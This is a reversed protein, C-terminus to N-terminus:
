RRGAQDSGEIKFEWICAAEDRSKRPPLKLPTVKIRPNVLYAKMVQEELRYCTPEILHPADREFYLLSRCQLITMIVHNPNKIEYEVPYLPGINNDLPLQLLKLSDLVTNLKINALKALRPNVRQGVKTWAELNCENAAEPGFRQSITEYWADAMRLWAFQWGTILKLLFDKSFDELNLDPKFPCSYDELEPM